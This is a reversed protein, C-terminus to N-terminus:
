CIEIYLGSTSFSVEDRSPLLQLSHTAMKLGGRWQKIIPGVAM